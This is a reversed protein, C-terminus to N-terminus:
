PRPRPGAHGALRPSSGLEVTGCTARHAHREGWTLGLDIAHAPNRHTSLTSEEPVAVPYSARGRPRDMGAPKTGPEPGRTVDTSPLHEVPSRDEGDGRWGPVEVAIMSRHVWERDRPEDAGAEAPRGGHSARPQRRHRCPAREPLCATTGRLPTHFLSRSVPRHELILIQLGCEPRHGATRGRPV